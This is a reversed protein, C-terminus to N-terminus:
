IGDLFYKLQMIPPPSLCNSIAPRSGLLFVKENDAGSVIRTKMCPNLTHLICLAKTYNVMRRTKSLEIRALVLVYM